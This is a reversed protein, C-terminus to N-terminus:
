WKRGVLGSGGFFVWFFLFGCVFFWRKTKEGLWPLFYELTMHPGCSLNFVMERNFDGPHGSDSPVGDTVGTREDSPM